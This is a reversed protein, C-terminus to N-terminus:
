GAGRWTVGMSALTAAFRRWVCAADFSDDSTIRRADISFAEYEAIAREIAAQWTTASAGPEVLLEPVASASRLGPLDTAVVPIGLSQAELVVRPRSYRLEDGSHPALLLLTDHFLHGPPVRARVEVNRHRAACRELAARDANVLPWSEQLVFEQDPMAGALAFAVDAGHFAVPNVLLIKSRVAPPAAALQIHSPVYACERATRAVVEDVLPPSNAALADFADPMAKIAALSTTERLVWEIPCGWSDGVDLARRLDLPRLSNLIIADPRQPLARLAAPVDNTRHVPFGDVERLETRRTSLEVLHWAVSAARRSVHGLKIAAGIRRRNAVYADGAAALVRVDAGHHSAIRALSVTSTLAGGYPTGCAFM